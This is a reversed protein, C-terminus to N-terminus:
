RRVHEQASTRSAQGAAVAVLEPSSQSVLRGGIVEELRSKKKKQLQVRSTMTRIYCGTQRSPSNTEYSCAQGKDLTDIACVALNQICIRDHM